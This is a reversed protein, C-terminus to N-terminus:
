SRIGYLPIILGINKLNNYSYYIPRKHISKMNYLISRDEELTLDKLISTDIALYYYSEFNSEEALKQFATTVIEAKRDKPEVESKYQIEKLNRNQVSSIITTVVMPYPFVYFLLLVTSITIIWRRMIGGLIRGYVEIRVIM